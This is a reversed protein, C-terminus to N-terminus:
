LQRMLQQIKRETKVRDPSGEPLFKEYTTLARRYYELAIKTKKQHECCTGIDSLSHAVYVHGSPFYKERMILAQQYYDLAEDYNEQDKLVKGINNLSRALDIHGSPYYEERMRLARQHYDFAENYKGQRRLIRGINDLSIAIDGHGSPYYKERIKLAQQHYNLAEDYHGQDVLNVGINNLVYASDKMRVPNTNMMRDYARDYYKRAEKWEGKFDLARGINFEIWAVDERNPDNLLQEFYKQSKDYQGINCMLRGFVIVISQEETEKQTQEIFSKTIIEGENSLNMKIMQMSEEQEISEIQFCANVDFLVEKEKPYESFQAIDGYAISKGIAKVNCKIEFLVSILDTRITPKTAFSLALSRLRSTSLYGNTSILKGQNEKLKEFEEKDLKLGRYVTLIEEESSLIQQHEHQLAETLDRIFFRFTYLLDVDGIRFAKNILKYVFSQKTYWRTADESRYERTYQDILKLEKTNGRYYQKCMEIMQKKAHENRPFRAIVYNFLQYWLFAGSEESLGKTAKQRQDFFSFTQIQKGVLDIQEQISQCLENLNVYIGIIKPYENMLYKWKEKKLCFIFISDVQPYSSVSPLLQSAKSGSTILFIKEQNISQICSVCQGLDTYFKVYDNIRRLQQKTKETDERSGINPDFWFLTTSEKNDSNTAISTQNNSSDSKIEDTSTSAKSM